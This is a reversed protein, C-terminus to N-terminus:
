DAKKEKRFIKILDLLMKNDKFKVIEKTLGMLISIHEKIVKNEARKKLVNKYNDALQSLIIEDSQVLNSEIKNVFRSYSKWLPFFIINFQIRLAMKNALKNLEDQFKKKSFTENNINSVVIQKVQDEVRLSIEKKIEDLSDKYLIAMNEKNFEYDISYSVEVNYVDFYNIIESYPLMIKSKHYININRDIKNLHVFGPIITEPFFSYEGPFLVKKGQFKSDVIYIISDSPHYIGFFSITGLILLFLFFLFKKM